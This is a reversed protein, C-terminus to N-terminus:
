CTNYTKPTIGNIQIDVNTPTMSRVYLEINKEKM